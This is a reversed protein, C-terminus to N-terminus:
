ENIAAGAGGGWAVGYVCTCRTTPMVTLGEEGGRPM